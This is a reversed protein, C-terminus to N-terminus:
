HELQHRLPGIRAPTNESDPEDQLDAEYEALADQYKGEQELVTGLLYHYTRGDGQVSERVRLAQRMHAEADALHDQRVEVGALHVYGSSTRPHFQIADKFYGAAEDLDGLAASCDGLDLYLAYNQSDAALAAALLPQAESFRQAKVLADGLDVQVIYSEPAREFSHTLLAIDGSWFRSEKLTVACLFLGAAAVATWRWLPRAGLARDIGIAALMCLGASPVYLYRDHLFDYTHFVRLNLVPLIPLVLLLACFAAVRSRLSIWLLAAATLAVALLPAWFDAFGFDILAANPYFLSYRWPLLAHQVYFWLAGPLTGAIMRTTWTRVLPELAGLAYVRAGLYAASVAILPLMAALARRWRERMEPKRLEPDRPVLLEYAGVLAPLVIATEKSFIDLAFLAAMALLWMHKSADTQPDRLRVYCLLTAFALAAFLSETAGSIWAVAEIHAPHLGFLLAAIGASAASGTLRRGLFYLLAVAALHLALASAHWLATDLGFLKSNLMLWVVFVPRYYNSKLAILYSWVDTTFYGPVDHWTFRPRMDIIQGVDDSVFGFNLAPLYVAASMLLVAILIFKRLREPPM